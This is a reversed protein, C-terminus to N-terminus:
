RIHRGILARGLRRRLGAPLGNVHAHGCEGPWRLDDAPVRARGRLSICGPRRFFVCRDEMRCLLEFSFAWAKGIGMRAGHLSLYALSEPLETGAATATTPTRDVPLDGVREHDEGDSRLGRDVRRTEGGSDASRLLAELLEIQRLTHGNGDSLLGTIM